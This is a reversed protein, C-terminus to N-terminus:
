RRRRRRRKGLVRLAAVRRRLLWASAPQMALGKAAAAAEEPRQLQMLVTALHGSPGPDTDTRAAAERLCREADALRSEHV